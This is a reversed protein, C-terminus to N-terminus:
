YAQQTLSSTFPGSDPFALMKYFSIPIFDAPLATPKSPSCSVHSAADFTACVLQGTTSAPYLPQGGPHRWIASPLRRGSFNSQAPLLLSTLRTVDEGQARGRNEVKLPLM